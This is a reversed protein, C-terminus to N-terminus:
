AHRKAGSESKPAGAMPFTQTGLADFSRINLDRQPFPIEIGEAQFANHIQTHLNHIVELRHELSTLYCRLVFDLSSDGFGEFGAMPAPDTMILEHERAVKLLVDRVKAVDSGYAVGVNVVIRNMQDSLTWNLVRGTIFEKNPVILEKRDWDVITTARMRIRSVVGSIDDVTVVDGVRIPREFLIILGSVFNAFIEQLGFGLGVSVAAILWHVKDWTIGLVGSIAVVGLVTIAYRSLTTIAYRTAPELPLRQLVSIELLGPINRGAIIMIVFFVCALLVHSVNVWKATGEGDDVSWLQWNLISSAPLVDAWVGWLGLLLAAIVATEVIRRTQANVVTLDLTEEALAPPAPMDSSEAAQAAAQAAARRQRAQSIALRRRSVLVWRMALSGAILLAVLLWATGQLRAALQEATYFYGVAALAALLMPLVILPPLLVYHMRRRSVERSGLFAQLIGGFADFVRQTFVALLLMAAIFLMRGLSDRWRDEFLAHTAAAALTLPLGILMFWRLHRRIAKLSVEPWGFHDQGLGHSRCVHRILELPLLVIGTVKLGWGLAQSLDTEGPAADLRWGLCFLLLAWPLSMLLTLELVRLTPAMNDTAGRAAQEGLERIRVRMKRQAAWLAGLSAGLGAILYAHAAFDAALLRAVGVWEMPRAFWKLCEAAAALDAPGLASASRVWLIREDIYNAQEGIEDDLDDEVDRLEGTLNGLYRNYAAILSDLIDCRNRLLERLEYDLAERSPPHPGSLDLTAMIEKARAPLDNLKRRQEALKMSELNVQMMTAGTLRVQDLRQRQRRLEARYQLLLPGIEPTAEFASYRSKLSAFDRKLDALVNTFESVQKEAVADSDSITKVRTALEKNEEAIGQLEPSTDSKKRVAQQFKQTADDARRDHIITQWAEVTAKKVAVDRAARDRQKPLLEDEANYCERESKLAAIENETAAKRAKLLTRRATKLPEPDGDVPPAELSKLVEALQKEAEESEESIGTLRREARRKPEAEFRTLEDQADALEAQKQNLSAELEALSSGSPLDLKLKAAPEDLEKRIKQLESPAEKTRRGFDAAQKAWEDARDLEKLAKQYMELVSGKVQEDLESLTKSQELRQQIADRTMEPDAPKGEAPPSSKASSAAPLADAAADQAAALSPYALGILLGFAIRCALSACCPATSPRLFVLRNPRVGDFQNM